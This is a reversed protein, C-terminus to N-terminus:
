LNEMIFDSMKKYLHLSTNGGRIGHNKNPYFQMDFQKDAAVLAKVLETSNQFHVNDDGMGHVLLLKGKMEEAFNIPSNQDYGEPNEQPTRM